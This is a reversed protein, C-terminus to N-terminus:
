CRPYSSTVLLSASKSSALTCLQLVWSNPPLPTSSGGGGEQSLSQKSKSLESHELHLRFLLKERIHRQLNSHLFTRWEYQGHSWTDLTSLKLVKRCKEGEVAQRVIEFADGQSVTNRSSWPWYYSFVIMRSWIIDYYDWYTQKLVSKFYQKSRLFTDIILLFTLHDNNKKLVWPSTM